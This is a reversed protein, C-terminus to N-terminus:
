GRLRRPARRQPHRASAGAAAAAARRLGRRLGHAEAAAQAQERVVDEGGGDVSDLNTGARRAAALSPEM